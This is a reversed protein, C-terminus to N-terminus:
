SQNSFQNANCLKKLSYALHGAGLMHVYNTTGERGTVSVYDVYWDDISKQLNVIEVDTFNHRQRIKEMIKPYDDM